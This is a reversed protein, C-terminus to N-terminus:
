NDRPEIVPHGPCFRSKRKGTNETEQVGEEWNDLEMAGMGVTNAVGDLM